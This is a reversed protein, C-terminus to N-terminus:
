PRLMTLLGSEEYVYVWDLCRAFMITTIETQTANTSVTNVTYIYTDYYDSMEEFKLTFTIKVNQELDDGGSIAGTLPDQATFSMRWSGYFREYDKMSKFNSSNYLMRAMDEQPIAKRVHVVNRYVLEGLANEIKLIFDGTHENTAINFKTTDVTTATALAEPAIRITYSPDASYSSEYRFEYTTSDALYRGVNVEAFQGGYSGGTCIYDAESFDISPYDTQSYDPYSTTDTSTTEGSCGTLMFSFMLPLLLLRRIKM